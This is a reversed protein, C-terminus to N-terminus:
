EATVAGATQLNDASSNEELKREVRPRHEITASNKAHTYFQRSSGFKKNLNPRRASMANFDIAGKRLNARYFLLNSDYDPSLEPPEPNLSTAKARGEQNVFDLIGVQERGYKSNCLPMDNFTLFRRANAGPNTEFITYKVSAREMLFSPVTKDTTRTRQTEATGPMSRRLKQGPTVETTM